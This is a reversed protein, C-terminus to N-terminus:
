STAFPLESRATTSCSGCRRRRELTMRKRLPNRRGNSSSLRQGDIAYGGYSPRESRAVRRPGLSAAVPAGKEDYLEIDATRLPSDPESARLRACAWGVEVGPRHLTLREWGVPLYVNESDEPPFAIAVAQGCADLLVPHIQYADGSSRLADPLVLEAFAEDGLVRLRRIAHFSRGLELGQERFLRYCEPGEIQKASAGGRSEFTATSAAPPAPAAEPRVLGSAHLNWSPDDGEQPSPSFSFIQFELGLSTPKLVCQVTRLEEDPLLLPSHVSISDLQCGESNSVRAGAALAMELFATAPLM